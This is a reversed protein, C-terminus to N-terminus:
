NENSIACQSFPETEIKSSIKALASLIKMEPPLPPAPPQAIFRRLKSIKRINGIKRLNKIKTTPCSALCVMYIM